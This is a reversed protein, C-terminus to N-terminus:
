IKIIFEYFILMIEDCWENKQEDIQRQVKVTSGFHKVDMFHHEGDCEIILNYDSVYFDFYRWCYLWDLRVKYQERFDINSDLLYKKVEKEFKSM